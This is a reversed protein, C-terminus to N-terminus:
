LRVKKEKLIKGSADVALAMKEKGKEIIVRYHIFDSKGQKITEQDKIFSYGPYKAGVANRVVAPLAVDKIVEKSYMLKGNKDYVAEGRLNTGKIKVLYSTPKEGNLNDYGSVIYEEGVIIAPVIAWEDAKAGLYDTKFAEVIAVPIETERAKIRIESNQAHAAAMVTFALAILTIVKKM